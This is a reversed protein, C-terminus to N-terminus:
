CQRCSAPPHSSQATNKQAYNGVDYYIVASGLEYHNGGHHYDCPNHSNVLHHHYLHDANDYIM